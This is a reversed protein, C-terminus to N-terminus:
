QPLSVSEKIGGKEWLRGEQGVSTVLYKKGNIGLVTGKGHSIQVRDGAKFPKKHTAQTYRGRNHVAPDPLLPVMPPM